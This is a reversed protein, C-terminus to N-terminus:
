FSYFYICKNTELPFFFFISNRSKNIVSLIYIENYTCHGTILWRNGVFTYGQLFKKKKKNLTDKLSYTLKCKGVFFQDNYKLNLKFFLSKLLFFYKLTAIIDLIKIISLIKFLTNNRLIMFILSIHM